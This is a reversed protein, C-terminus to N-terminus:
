KTKTMEVSLLIKTTNSPSADVLELVTHRNSLFYRDNGDHDFASIIYVDNSIHTIEVIDVNDIIEIGNSNYRGYAAIAFYVVVLTLLVSSVITRM